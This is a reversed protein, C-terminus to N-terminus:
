KILLEDAASWTSFMLFVFLADAHCLQYPNLVEFWGDCSHATGNESPTNETKGLHSKVASNKLHSLM